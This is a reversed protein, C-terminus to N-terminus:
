ITLTLVVLDCPEFARLKLGNQLVNIQCSVSAHITIKLSVIANAEKWLPPGIELTNEM